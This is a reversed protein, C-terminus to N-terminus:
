KRKQLHFSKDIQLKKQLSLINNSLEITQYNSPEIKLYNSLQIISNGFKRLKYTEIVSNHSPYM